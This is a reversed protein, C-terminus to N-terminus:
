TGPSTKALLKGACREAENLYQKDPSPFKGRKWDRYTTILGDNDLSKIIATIRDNSREPVALIGTRAGSTLAEYIMSVSDATVWVCGTKALQEPIWDRGTRDHAYYKINDAVFAQLAERTIVPTRQSDTIAWSIDPNHGTIGTIQKMLGENDWNYHKSPGGVMILGRTNDHNASPTITNLAGRTVIINAKDEPDDHDPILCYDFWSTPLGPKMLVVSKGGYARQACLISLHTGHGAGIIFVPTQKGAGPPYSGALYNMIARPATLAPLEHCIGSSIKLIANALGRSQNDHGAKGDFIRWIVTSMPQDQGARGAFFALATSNM